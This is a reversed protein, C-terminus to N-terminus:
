LVPKLDHSLGAMVVVIVLLAISSEFPDSYRAIGLCIVVFHLIHSEFCAKEIVQSNVFM